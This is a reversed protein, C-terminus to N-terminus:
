VVAVTTLKAVEAALEENTAGKDKGPAYEYLTQGGVGFETELDSMQPAPKGAKILAARLLMKAKVLPKKDEALRNGKSSHDGSTSNYGLKGKVHASIMNAADQITVPRGLVKSLQNPFSDVVAKLANVEADKAKQKHDLILKQREQIAVMEAELEAATMKSIDKQSNTKTSM